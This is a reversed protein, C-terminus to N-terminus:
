RCADVAQLLSAFNKPDTSEDVTALGYNDRVELLDAAPQKAICAALARRDRYAKTMHFGVHLYLATTDWNTTWRPEVDEVLPHVLPIRISKDKLTSGPFQTLLADMTQKDRTVSARAVDAVPYGTGLADAIERDTHKPPSGFAISLLVDRAVAVETDERADDVKKRDVDFALDTPSLRFSINGRKMENESANALQAAFRRDLGDDHGAKKGNDEREKVRELRMGCVHQTQGCFTFSVEEFEPVDHRLHTEVEHHHEVRSAPLAVALQDPTVDLRARALDDVRAGRSKAIVIVVGVAVCVLCVGVFIKVRKM